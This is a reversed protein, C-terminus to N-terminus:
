GRPHFKRHVEKLRREDVHTYIQTTSIDAHGLMEQIIRLDAGGSLLHTAFSHRLQHPHVAKRLGARKARDRVIQWIRSASLKPKVLKPRGTQLYHEVTQRAKSGVPIVRTKNGKGTVRIFGEELYMNELLANILESLRLGSAYLLELIARDRMGLPTDTDVSELLREVENENLTKPLMRDPRPVPLDDAINVAIFGKGALHRFFIKLIVIIQRISSAALGNGKRESLYASLEEITCDEPRMSGHKANAWQAFTELNRRVLIQYNASLGRETALHMIFLDIASEMETSVNL